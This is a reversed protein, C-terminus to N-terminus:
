GTFSLIVTINATQGAAIAIPSALQKVTFGSSAASLSLNGHFCTDPTATPDDCATLGTNVTTIDGDSDATVSGQLVLSGDNSGSNPTSVTLTAFFGSEDARPDDSRVIRCAGFGGRGDDCIQGAATISWKHFGVVSEGALIDALTWPNSFANTFTRREILNGDEFIEVIWHGHVQIGEMTPGAARDQATTPAGALLSVVIALLGARLAQIRM